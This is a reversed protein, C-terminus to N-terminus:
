DCCFLEFEYILLKFKESYIQEHCNEKNDKIINEYKKFQDKEFPKIGLKVLSINFDCIIKSFEFNLRDDNLIDTLNNRLM